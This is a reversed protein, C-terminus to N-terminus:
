KRKAGAAAKGRVSSQGAGVRNRAEKIRLNSNPKVARRITRGLPNTPGTGEANFEAQYKTIGEAKAVVSQDGITAGLTWEARAVGDADTLGGDLVNLSGGGGTVTFTVRRGRIPQADDDLVRVELTQLLKQNIPGVQGDGKFSRVPFYVRVGASFNRNGNIPDNFSATVHDNGKPTYIVSVEGRENSYENLVQITGRDGTGMSWTVRVGRVPMTDFSLVRFMIPVRTPEGYVVAQDEGNSVRFSRPSKGAHATFTASPDGPVNTTRVTVTQTAEGQGLTWKATLEGNQDTAEGNMDISGNHSPSDWRILKGAVPRGRADVLRIKVPEPLAHGQPAYQGNGSVIVLNYTTPEPAISTANFGVPTLSDVRAVARVVGTESGLTWITSALGESDTYSEVPEHSGHNPAYPVWRVRKNPVPNGYFDVVRMAIPESLAQGAIGTQNDGSVVLLKRAKGPLASASIYTAETSDDALSAAMQWVGSKTGFTWTTRALGDEDTLATAPTPTGGGEEVEFKILVGPAPDGDQNLARVVIAEPLATEIIEEQEYGSVGEIHSASTAVMVTAAVSPRGIASVLTVIVRAEGLKKATVLGTESVTAVTTDSSSWEVRTGEPVSDTFPEQRQDLVTAELQRTAGNGMSVSGTGLKIARAVRGSGDAGPEIVDDCASTFTLLAFITMFFVIRADFRLM